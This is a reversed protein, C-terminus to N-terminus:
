SNTRVVVDTRMWPHILCQFHHVGRALTPVTSTGGSPVGTTAFAVPTKGDPLLAECEPVPTLGLLGNVVAVCGGGFHQVETFTHFEGGKNRTTLIEGTRADMVSPNFEWGNASGQAQLQAVFNPFTTAGGGVCTGPGIAANITSPDCDDKLDIRNGHNSWATAAVVGFFVLLALTM